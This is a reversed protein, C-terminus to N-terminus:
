SLKQSRQANCNAISKVLTPVYQSIPHPRSKTADLIDAASKKPGPAPSATGNPVVPTQHMVAPVFQQQPAPVFQPATSPGPRPAAEHKVMGPTPSPSPASGSMSRTKDIQGLNLPVGGFPNRATPTGNRSPVGEVSQGTLPAPSGTASAKGGVHITIRKPNASAEPNQAV